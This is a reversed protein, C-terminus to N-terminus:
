CMVGVPSRRGHRSGCASATLCAGAIIMLLLVAIVKM